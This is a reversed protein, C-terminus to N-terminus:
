TKIPTVDAVFGNWTSLVSTITMAPRLPLRLAVDIVCTRAFWSVVNSPEAFPTIRRAV